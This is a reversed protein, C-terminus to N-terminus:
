DHKSLLLDSISDEPASIDYVEALVEREYHACLAMMLSADCSAFKTATVYKQLLRNLSLRSTATSSDIVGM